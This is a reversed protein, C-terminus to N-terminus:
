PQDWAPIAGDDFIKKAAAVVEPSQYAAVLNAYKLNNADKKRVVILNAYISSSNEAYLADKEPSLGAPLAFNTNIAALDVDGLSRPLQAADLESFQLQKPNDVVDAPTAATSVGSQLKILGASQLLLLARGENSPDNPIAVVAGVALNSLNTIKRSYLGMPYIFTRAISVLQCDLNKEQQKLFPLHQFINASISGDCLARNPMNYDSFSVIKIDLGYNKIAVQRAVEMLQEEPGSMVGVHLDNSPDSDGGGCAALFLFGSLVLIQKFIRM